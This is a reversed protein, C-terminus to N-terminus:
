QRDARAERVIAMIASVVAIVPIVACTAIVAAALAVVVVVVPACVTPPARLEVPGIGWGRGRPAVIMRAM